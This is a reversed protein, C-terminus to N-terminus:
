SGNSASASSLGTYSAASLGNAEAKVTYTSPALNTISFLGAADAVAKREQSTKENTVIVTAGPIVAGTSDTITGLIRGADGQGFLQPLALAGLAVLRLFTKPM